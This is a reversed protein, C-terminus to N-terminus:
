AYAYPGGAKLARQYAPREHIRKVFAAINPCRPQLDMRACAAELPFSMMIDAASFEDDVFWNHQRLSHEIYDMHLNLQPRIFQKKVNASIAKAIPKILFPAQKEVTDFVLHLLLPPMASGEAYHLWYDYNLRQDSGRPPALRGNGHTEVIYDIILGTEAVTREDDTILPSKGLPHVKKLEAPALMTKPDRKYHKVEYPLELEELLWLVRQSRSDELHHVTIM